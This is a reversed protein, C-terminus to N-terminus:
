GSLPGPGDPIDISGGLSLEDLMRDVDPLNDAMATDMNAEEADLLRKQVDMLRSALSHIVGQQSAVKAILFQKDKGEVILHEKLVRARERQGKQRAYYFLVILLFVIFLPVLVVTSFVVALLSGVWKPSNQLLNKTVAFTSTYNRFPGCQRSPTVTVFAYGLPFLCLLWTALLLLQLVDDSGARYHRHSPRLNFFLSYMQVYFLLFLQILVILPMGPSFYYGLWVLAQMFILELIYKAIQFEPPGMITDIIKYREWMLRWVFQGVLVSFAIFIFSVISLQWLEQALVSEWCVCETAGSNVNCGSIRVFLSVMLVALSSLKLFITRYLTYKVEERPTRWQEYEALKSFVVPAMVDFIAITLSAALRQLYLKASTEEGQSFKAQIERVAELSFESAYYIALSALTLLSFIFLNVVVRRTYAQVKMETTWVMALAKENAVEELLNKHISIAKVRASEENAISYDWGGFIKSTYSFIKEKDKSLSVKYASYTRRSIILFSIIMVSASTYFFAEPMKYNTGIIGSTYASYFLPTTDLYGGGTLTDAFHDFWRKTLTQNRWDDIGASWQPIMMFCLIPLFLLTNMWVMGRLLVFYSVVGTGFKGEITKLHGNWMSARLSVQGSFDKMRAKWLDFQWRALQMFSVDHSYQGTMHLALSEQDQGSSGGESHHELPAEDTLTLNIGNLSKLDGRKNWQMTTTSTTRANAADSLDTPAGSPSRMHGEDLSTLNGAMEFSCQKNMSSALTSLKAGSFKERRRQAWSTNSTISMSRAKMPVSGCISPIDSEQRVFPYPSVTPTSPATTHPSADLAIPLSTNTTDALPVEDSSRSGFMASSIPSLPGSRSQKVGQTLSSKTSLSAPGSISSSPVTRTNARVTSNSKRISKRVSAQRLVHGQASPLISRVDTTSPVTLGAGLFSSPSNMESTKRDM